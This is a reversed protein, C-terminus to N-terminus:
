ATARQQATALGATVEALPVGSWEAVQETTIGPVIWTSLRRWDRAQAAGVIRGRARRTAGDLEQAQARQRRHQEAAVLQQRLREAAVEGGVERVEQRAALGAVMAMIDAIRDLVAQGVVGQWWSAPYAFEGPLRFQPKVLCELADAGAAEGPARKGAAILTRNQALREASKPQLITRVDAPVQQPARGQRELKRAELFAVEFLMSPVVRQMHLQEAMATSNRRLGARGQASMPGRPLFMGVATMALRLNDVTSPAMHLRRVADQLHGFWTGWSSWAVVAAREAAEIALWPPVVKVSVPFPLDAAPTPENPVAVMARGPHQHQPEVAPEVPGDAACGRSQEPAAPEPEPQHSLLVLSRPVDSSGVSPLDAGQPILNDPLRGACGPLRGALTPLRGARLGQNPPTTSATELVRFVPLRHGSRLRSRTAIELRGAATLESTARRVTREDGGILNALFDASDGWATARGHARGRVMALFESAAPSLVGDFDTPAYRFRCGRDAAARQLDRDVRYGDDQHELVDRGHLRRLAVRLAKPGPKPLWTPWRRDISETTVFRGRAGQLYGVVAYVHRDLANSRAGAVPVLSTALWDPSRPARAPGDAPDQRPAFATNGDM